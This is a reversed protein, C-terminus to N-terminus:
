YLSPQFYYLLRESGLINTPQYVLSGAVQTRFTRRHIGVRSRQDDTSVDNYLPWRMTLRVEHLSNQLNWVRRFENTGLFNTLSPPYAMYPEIELVAQYRFTNDRAEIDRDIATNNLARLWVVVNSVGQQTTSRPTSLLGVLLQAQIGLPNNNPASFVDSSGDLYNIKLFYVSNSLVGAQDKGSRIAELLYTGEANIITEERNDKQVQLGTPLVGLIAVMAFAVVAISLAIEVMTFGAEGPRGLRRVHHKAGIRM